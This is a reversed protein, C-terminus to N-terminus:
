RLSDWMQHIVPEVKEHTPAMYPRPEIKVGRSDIGGFELRRSYTKATENDTELKGLGPGVESRVSFNGGKRSWEPDTHGISNRLPGFLVAPAEGPASAQHQVEPGGHKRVKYIRGSRQGSLTLKIAGEFYMAASKVAREMEPRVVAEFAEASLDELGEWKGESSFDIM